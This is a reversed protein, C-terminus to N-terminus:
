KPPNVDAPRGGAAGATGSGTTGAQFQARERLAQEMAENLATDKKGQYVGPKYQVIRGQEENRCGALLIVGAVAGVFAAWFRARHM